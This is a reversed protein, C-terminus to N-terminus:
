VRTKNQPDLLLVSKIFGLPFSFYTSLNDIEVQHINRGEKM